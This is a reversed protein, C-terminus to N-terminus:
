NKISAYLYLSGCVLILPNQSMDINSLAVKFDSVSMVPKQSNIIKLSLDHGSQPNRANLLDVCYVSDSYAWLSEMFDNPNKDSALGLIVHIPRSPNDSKWKKTYATANM